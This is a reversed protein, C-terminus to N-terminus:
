DPASIPEEPLRLNSRKRDVLIHAGPVLNWGHEPAVNGLGFFCCLEPQMGLRQEVDEVKYKRGHTEGELKVQIEEAGTMWCLPLASICAEMDPWGLTRTYKPTEVLITGMFGRLVLQSASDGPALYGM